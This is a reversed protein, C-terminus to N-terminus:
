LKHAEMDFTVSLQILKTKLNVGCGQPLTRIDLFMQKTFLIAIIFNIANKNINWVAFCQVVTKLM